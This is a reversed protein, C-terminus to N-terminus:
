ELGYKKMMEQIFKKEKDNLEIEKAKQKVEKKEKYREIKEKVAESIFSARSNFKSKNNVIKDVEEVLETPISTSTYGERPM